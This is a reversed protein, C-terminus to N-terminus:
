KLVGFVVLAERDRQRLLSFSIMSPIFVFDPLPIGDQISIEQNYRITTIAIISAGAPCFTPLIETKGKIEAGATRFVVGRQPQFQPYPQSSGVNRGAPASM